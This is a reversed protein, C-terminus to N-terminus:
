EPIIDEGNNTSCDTQNASDCFANEVRKCAKKDGTGFVVWHDSNSYKGFLVVCRIHKMMRGEVCTPCGDSSDQSLSSRFPVVSALLILAAASVSLITKRM